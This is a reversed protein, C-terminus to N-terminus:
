NNGNGRDFTCSCTVTAGAGGFKHPWIFSRLDSVYFDLFHSRESHFTCVLSDYFVGICSQPRNPQCRSLYLNQPLEGQTFAVLLNGDIEQDADLCDVMVDAVDNEARRLSGSAHPQLPVAPWASRFALWRHGPWSIRCAAPRDPCSLDFEIAQWRYTRSRPVDSAPVNPPLRAM